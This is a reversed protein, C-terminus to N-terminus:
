SSMYVDISCPDEAIDYVHCANQQKLDYSYIAYDNTIYYYIHTVGKYGKINKYEVLTVGDPFKNNWILQRKDIKKIHKLSDPLCYCDHQKAQDVITQKSIM